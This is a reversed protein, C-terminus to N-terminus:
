DHRLAVTPNMRSARVAPWAAALMTLGLIWGAVVAYTLPDFAPVNFLFQAILRSAWFAAVLGFVLGM